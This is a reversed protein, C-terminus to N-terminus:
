RAREQWAGPRSASPTQLSRGGLQQAHHPTHSVCAGRCADHANSRLFQRSHKCGACPPLQLWQAHREATCPAPLWPNMSCNHPLLLVGALMEHRQVPRKSCTSSLPLRRCGRWTSGKPQPAATYWCTSLPLALRVCHCNKSRERCASWDSRASMFSPSRSTKCSQRSMCQM